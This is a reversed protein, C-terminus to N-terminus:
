DRAPNTRCLRVANGLTLGLGDNGPNAFAKTFCKVTDHADHTGGCLDVALGMPLGLGGNGENEWAVKFCKVPEADDPAIELNPEPKAEPPAAANAIEALALVLGGAALVALIGTRM